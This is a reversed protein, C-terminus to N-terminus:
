LSNAHSDRIVVELSYKSPHGGFLLTWMLSCPQVTAGRPASCLVRFLGLLLDKWLFQLLLPGCNGGAGTSVYM